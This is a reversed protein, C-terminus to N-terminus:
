WGRHNYWTTHHNTKVVVPPFWCRLFSHINSKPKHLPMGFKVPKKAPLCIFYGWAKGLHHYKQKPKSSAPYDRLLMIIIDADAILDDAQARSLRKARALADALKKFDQLHKIALTPHRCQLSMIAGDIRGKLPLAHMLPLARQAVLQTVDARLAKLLDIVDIEEGENGGTSSQFEYAGIDVRGGVIRAHGDPDTTIDTPVDENRGADICPSGASLRFDGNDPDVLMPDADLIGEGPFGGEIVSYGALSVANVGDQLQNPTNARLISNSVQLVSNINFVAGGANAANNHFVSNVIFLASGALNYVGGGSLTASNGTFISNIIDARSNEVALAGGFLATNNIFTTNIVRPDAAIAYIAAGFSANNGIFTCDIFTARSGDGHYVAGGFGATNNEFICDAITPSSAALYLGGGFGGGASGHRITLGELRATAPVIELIMGSGGTGGSMGPDIITLETGAGIIHLDKGIWLITEPYVGAAVLIRDGDSAAHIASQITAYGGPVHLDAALATHSLAAAGVWAWASVRRRNFFMLSSIRRSPSSSETMRDHPM